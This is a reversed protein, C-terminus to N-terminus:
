VTTIYFRLDADGTRLTNLFGSSENGCDCMRGNTGIRLWIFGTWVSGDLKLDMRINRGDIGLEELHENDKINELFGTHMDTRMRGARRVRSLIQNGTLIVSSSM